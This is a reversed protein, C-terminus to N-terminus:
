REGGRGFNVMSNHYREERYEAYRIRDVHSGTPLEEWKPPPSPEAKRQEEEAERKEARREARAIAKARKAKWDPGLALSKQQEEIRTTEDM